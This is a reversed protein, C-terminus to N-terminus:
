HAVHDDGAHGPGVGPHHVLQGPEPHGGHV